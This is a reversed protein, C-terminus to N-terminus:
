FIAVIGPGQVGAADRTAGRIRERLSGLRAVRALREVDVRPGEDEAAARLIASLDELTQQLRDIEQLQWFGNQGASAAGQLAEGLAAQIATTATALDSLEESLTLFLDCRRM